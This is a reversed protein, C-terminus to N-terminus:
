LCHFHCAPIRLKPANCFDRLFSYCLQSAAYREKDRLGHWDKSDTAPPDEYKNWSYIDWELEKWCQRAQVYEMGLDIWKYNWDLNQWCGWTEPDAYGLALAAAERGEHTRRLEDARRCEDRVCGVDVPQLVVGNGHGSIGGRARGM